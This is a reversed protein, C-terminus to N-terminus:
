ASKEKKFSRMKIIEQIKLVDEQTFIRHGLSTRNSTIIGERDWKRLTGSSVGLYDAVEKVKM